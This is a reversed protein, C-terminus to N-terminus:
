EYPCTDNRRHYPMRHVTKRIRDMAERSDTILTELSAKNLEGEESLRELKERIGRLYAGIKETVAERERHLTKELELSRALSSEDLLRRNRNILRTNQSELAKLLECEETVDSMCFAYTQSTSSERSPEDLGDIPLRWYRFRRGHLELEGEPYEGRRVCAFAHSLEPAYGAKDFRTILDDLSDGLFPGHNDFDLSGWSILDYRSDMIIISDRISDLIWRAMRETLHDTRSDAIPKWTAKRALVTLTAGIALAITGCALCVIGATGFFFDWGAYPCTSSLPSLIAAALLSDIGARTLIRARREKAEWSALCLLAITLVSFGYRAYNFYSYYTGM